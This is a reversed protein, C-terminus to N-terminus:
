FQFSHTDKWNFRPSFSSSDVVCHKSFDLNYNAKEKNKNLSIHKKTSSWADSMDGKLLFIQFGNKYGL